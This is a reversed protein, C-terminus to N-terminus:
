AATQRGVLRSLAVGSALLVLGGGALLALDLGTFALVGNSSSAQTAAPGHNTSGATGNNNGDNGGQATTGAVGGAEGGYGTGTSQAFAAPALALAGVVTLIAILRRTGKKVKHEREILRGAAIPRGRIGEGLLPGIRVEELRGM